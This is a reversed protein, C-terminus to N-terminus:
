RYNLRIAGIGRLPRPFQRFKEKVAHTFRCLLRIIDVPKEGSYRSFYKKAIRLANSFDVDYHYKNGSKRKKLRCELAAENALFVGFNYMTLSAYIEQLLFESKKSHFYLLGAAHKLYRFAIECGWRWHYCAKIDELDFTYPLNTIIYEFTDESTKIKLVRIQLYALSNNGLLDQFHLINKAPNMYRYVETQEKMIKTYKDTFFRKIPVDFEDQGDPLENKYSSLMSKSSSPAKVRFVYFLQKIECHFILDYSEYGRDATIIYSKPNDPCFHDLMTHLAAREDPNQGPQIVVDLFAKSIVDVFGNLHMHNYGKYDNMRPKNYDEIIEANTTYVVHCGDCALICCDKFKHTTQPFASAFEDFLYQYAPLTIQRRRQVFASQSPIRDPDMSFYSILEDSTTGKGMTLILRMTDYFSLKGLGQRMFDHGPRDSFMWHHESMDSLIAEIKEKVKEPKATIM